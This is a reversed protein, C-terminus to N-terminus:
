SNPLQPKSRKYTEPMKPCGKQTARHVSFLATYIHVHTSGYDNVLRERERGRDREGVM